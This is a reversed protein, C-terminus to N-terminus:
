DVTHFTSVISSFEDLMEGYRYDSTGFSISYTTSGTVLTYQVLMMTIASSNGRNLTIRFDSRIAEEGNIQIEQSALLTYGLQELGRTTASAQEEVSQLAPVKEATINVNTIGDEHFAAFRMTDDDIAAAMSQLREAMAPNAAGLQDATRQFDAGTVPVATWEAPLALAVEKGQAVTYGSPMNDPKDVGSSCAALITILFFFILCVLLDSGCVFGRRAEGALPPPQHPEIKHQDLGLGGVGAFYKAPLKCLLM